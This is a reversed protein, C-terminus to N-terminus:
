QAKRPNPDRTFGAEFPFHLVLANETTTVSGGDVRVYLRTPNLVVDPMSFEFSLTKTFLWSPMKASAIAANVKEVLIAEVLGPILALDVDELQVSFALRARGEEVEIRPLLLARMRAFKVPVPIGVIPWEADGKLEVRLGVGAVLELATLGTVHIIKSYGPLDVDFPLSSTLFSEVDDRTVLAEIHM